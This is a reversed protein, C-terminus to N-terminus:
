ALLGMQISSFTGETCTAMYLTSKIFTNLVSRFRMCSSLGILTWSEKNLYSVRVWRDITAPYMPGLLKGESCLKKAYEVIKGNEM